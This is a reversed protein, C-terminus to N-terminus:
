DCYFKIEEDTKKNLIRTYNARVSVSYDEASCNFSNPSRNQTCTLEMMLSLSVYAGVLEGTEPVEAVVMRKSGHGEQQDCNYLINFDNQAFGMCSSLLCALVLFKKM